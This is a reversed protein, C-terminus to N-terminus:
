KKRKILSLYPSGQMIQSVPLPTSKKNKRSHSFEMAEVLRRGMRTPKKSTKSINASDLVPSLRVTKEPTLQLPSSSLSLVSIAPPPSPSSLPPTPSSSPTPVYDEEALPSLEKDFRGLKINKKYPSIPRKFKLPSPFVVERFLLDNINHQSLINRVEPNNLREKYLIEFVTRDQRYTLPYDESELRYKSFKQYPLDIKYIIKPTTRMTIFMFENNTSMDIDYRYNGGRQTRRKSHIKRTRKVRKTKKM